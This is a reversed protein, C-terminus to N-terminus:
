AQLCARLCPAPRSAIPLLPLGSSAQQKGGGGGGGAARRRGARAGLDPDPLNDGYGALKLGKQFVWTGDLQGLADMFTQNCQMSPIPLAGPPSPPTQRCYTRLGPTVEGGRKLQM